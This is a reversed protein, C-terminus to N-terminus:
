KNKNKNDNIIEKLEKMDINNINEELENLIFLNRYMHELELASIIDELVEENGVKFSDADYEVTDGKIKIAQQAKIITEQLSISETGKVLKIKENKNGNLEVKKILTEYGPQEIEIEYSQDCPLTLEFEGVSNTFVFGKGENKSDFVSVSADSVPIGIENLVTGKLKCDQAYITVFSFQFLILYLLKNM